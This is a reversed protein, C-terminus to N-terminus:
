NIELSSEKIKTSPNLTAILSHVIEKQAQNARPGITIEMDNLIVPDLDLDIYSFNLYNTKLRSFIQQQDKVSKATALDKISWPVIFFLYRYEKEFAWQRRKYIGIDKISVKSERSNGKVIETHVKPILKSKDDTYIIKQLNARYNPNVSCNKELLCENTLAPHTVYPEKLYGGNPLIRVIKFPDKPLRIRVGAMNPTYMNWLPISEELDATWCSVFCFRGLDGYDATKQEEM